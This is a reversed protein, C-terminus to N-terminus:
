AASRDESASWNREDDERPTIERLQQEQDFLLRLLMERAATLEFNRGSMGARAIEFLQELPWNRELQGGRYRSFAPIQRPVPLGESLIMALPGISSGPDFRTNASTTVFDGIFSGVEHLGTDILKEGQPVAVFTQDLKRISTTSGAGLNSWPGVYSNSLACQHSSNVHSHVISREITGAITCAPGITTGSGARGGDIRTERGLHCPGEIRSFSRIRVGDEISIPGRRADLVVFPEFETRPSVSLNREDGLVELGKRRIPQPYLTTLQFDRHLQAANAEILDWPRSLLTGATEVITRTSAVRKLFATQDLHGYLKWEDPLVWLAVPGDESLVAEKPVCPLTSVDAPIWRGNVLLIPSEFLWAPDNLRAEPHEERYVGSLHPRLIVGWETINWARILRERLTYRGCVLEFVPRTS